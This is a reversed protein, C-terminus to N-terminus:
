RANKIGVGAASLNKCSIQASELPSKEFDEQEVIYWEIGLEGAANFIDRFNITGNLIETDKGTKEDLDKLHIIPLRGAYKKVYAVPDEGGKKVWYTDIEAKVYQPDTLEFFIDLAYKEGIRKFEHAHNHYCFVFGNETLKKGIANVKDALRKFEEMDKIEDLQLYPCTIYRSGIVKNYEIVGNLDNDLANFSVHSGASTLGFNNLHRKLEEATLDGYGAFEVGDYGMEAVKKLTGVFDAPMVDRLTYLQLGLPLRSM